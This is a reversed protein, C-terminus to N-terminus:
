WVFPQRDRCVFIRRKNTHRQKIHTTSSDNVRSAFPVFCPLVRKKYILQVSIHLKMIRKRKLLNQKQDSRSSKFQIRVIRALSRGFLELFKHDCAWRVVSVLSKVKDLDVIHELCYLEGLLHLHHSSQRHGIHAQARVRRIKVDLRADVFIINIRSRRLDMVDDVLVVVLCLAVFRRVVIGAATSAISLM